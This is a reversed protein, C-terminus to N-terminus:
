LVAGGLDSLDEGILEESNFLDEATAVRCLENFMNKIDVDHRRAEEQVQGHALDLFAEM